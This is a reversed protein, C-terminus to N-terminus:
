PGGGLGAAPGLAARAAADPVRGAEDWGMANWYGRVMEEIPVTRGALPGETLPPEGRM